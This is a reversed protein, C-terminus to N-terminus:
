ARADAAKAVTNIIKYLEAVMKPNKTALKEAIKEDKYGRKFAIIVQDEIMNLITNRIDSFQRIFDWLSEDPRQICAFLDDEQDPCTYTAHFNAEFM